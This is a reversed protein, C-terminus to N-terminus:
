PVPLPVPAADPTVAVAFRDALIEADLLEAAATTGADDAGSVIWTPPGDGESVAAV